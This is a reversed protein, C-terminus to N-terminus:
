YPLLVQNDKLLLTVYSIGECNNRGLFKNEAGPLMVYECPFPDTFFLLVNRLCQYTIMLPRSYHYCSTSIFTLHKFTSRMHRSTNVRVRECGVGCDGAAM